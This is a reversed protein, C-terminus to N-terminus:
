FFNPLSDQQIASLEQRIQQEKHYAVIPRGIVALLVAVFAMALFMSRLRFKLLRSVLKMRTIRHLDLSPEGLRNSITGLHTKALAPCRVFHLMRKTPWVGVNERAPGRGLDLRQLHYVGNRVM